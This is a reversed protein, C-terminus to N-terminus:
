FCCNDAHPLPAASSVFDILCSQLGFSTEENSQVKRSAWSINVICVFGMQLGRSAGAGRCRQLATGSFVLGPNGDRRKGEGYSFRVKSLRWNAKCGGSYCSLCTLLHQEEQGVSLHTFFTCLFPKKNGAQCISELFLVPSYICKLQAGTLFYENKKVSFKLITIFDSSRSCM